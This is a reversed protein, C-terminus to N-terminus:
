VSDQSECGISNSCLRFPKAEGWVGAEPDPVTARCACLLIEVSQTFTDELFYESPLPRMLPPFFPWVPTLAHMRAHTRPPPPDEPRLCIVTILAEQM